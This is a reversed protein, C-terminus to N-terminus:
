HALLFRLKNLVQNNRKIIVFYTGSLKDSIDIFTLQSNLHDSYVTVGFLNVIDVTIDVSPITKQTEIYLLGSSPNPYIKLTIQNESIGLRITDTTSSYLSTDVILHNTFYYDEDILMSDQYYLDCLYGIHRQYSNNRWYKEHYASDILISDITSYIFPPVTDITTITYFYSSHSTDSSLLESYGITDPIPLTINSLLTWCDDGGALAIDMRNDNNLDGISLSYNNLVTYVNDFSIYNNFNGFADQQYITTKLFGRHGVIIENKGDCNLDSIKIPRALDYASLILPTEFGLTDSKQYIVYVKGNPYNASYTMAIDLKDDDNLHGITMAESGLYNFDYFIPDDLIGSANQLFIYFGYEFGAGGYFILDNLGDNDMDGIELSIKGTAISPYDTASLTGDNNQYFVRISNNNYMTTVLDTLGDNNLDGSRVAHSQEGVIIETRSFEKEELQYYIFIMNAMPIVIDLLGNNDFDGIDIADPGFWNQYKYDLIVTDNGIGEEDQFYVLLKYSLDTEPFMITSIVFDDLGDNNLDGAVSVETDCGINFKEFPSYNIQAMLFHLEIVIIFTLLLAKKM